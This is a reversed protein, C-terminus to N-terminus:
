YSKPVQSIAPGYADGWFVSSPGAVIEGAVGAQWGLPEPLGGALPIRHVWHEVGATSNTGITFAAEGDLDFADLAPATGLTAPTGGATPIRRLSLGEIWYLMGASLRLRRPSGLGLAIVTPIGGGIPAKKMEDGELWYVSTQDLALGTPPSATAVVESPAAAGSLPARAIRGDETWYAFDADAAVWRPCALGSGLWTGGGTVSVRRVFGQGAAYDCQAWVLDTGALALQGATGASAGAIAGSADLEVPAGGALPAAFVKAAISVGVEIATFYLNQADLALGAPYDLGSVVVTPQQLTRFTRDAGHFTGAANQAVLRYHRTSSPALGSLTVRHVVEGPTAYQVPATASGYATTDGHEFWVATTAGSPNFIRGELDATVVRAVASGTACAAAGPAPTAEVEASLGSERDFPAFATVVFRYARGNVLGGVVASPGSGAFAFGHDPLFLYDTASLGSASAWFVEYSSADPVPEWSLFVFGDGASAALSAPPPIPGTPVARVRASPASEGAADLATVVFHYGYAPRLGTVLLPSTVATRLTGETLALYNGPEVSPDAAYYVNYSTAGPVDDWTVTASRDGATVAPNLPAATRSSADTGGGCGIAVLFVVRWAVGRQNRM